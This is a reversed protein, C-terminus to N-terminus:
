EGTRAKEKARTPNRPSPSRAPLSGGARPLIEPHQDQDPLQDTPRERHPLSGHQDLQRGQEVFRLAIVDNTLEAPRVANDAKVTTACSHDAVAMVIALSVSLSVQALCALIAEIVQRSGNQGSMMLGDRGPDQARVEHSHVQRVTLDRLFETQALAVGLGHGLHQAVADHRRCGLHDQAAVNLEVLEVNDGSVLALGLRHPGFSAFAPAVSQLATAPAAGQLLLLWRDEAHDLAAALDDDPHKGINLLCGDMRDDLLGDGFARADISVLIADVGLKRTEAVAVLGDTM